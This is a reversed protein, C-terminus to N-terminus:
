ALERQYEATSLGRLGLTGRSLSEGCVGWRGAINPTPCELPTVYPSGAWGSRPEWSLCLASWNPVQATGSGNDSFCSHWQPETGGEQVGPWTSGVICLAQSVLMFRPMTKIIGRISFTGLKGLRNSIHAQQSDSPPKDGLGPVRSTQSPGPKGWLLTWVGMFSGAVWM